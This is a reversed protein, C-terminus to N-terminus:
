KECYGVRESARDSRPYPLFDSTESLQIWCEM